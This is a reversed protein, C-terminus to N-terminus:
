EVQLIFRVAAWPLAAHAPDYQVAMDGIQKFQDIWATVKELVHRLIVTEGKSNKYKWRKELCLRKKDEVAVLVEHLITLKDQQSFDIQSKERDSLTEVAKDWLTRTDERARVTGSASSM